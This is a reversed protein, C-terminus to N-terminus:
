VFQKRNMGFHRKEKIQILTHSSIIFSYIDISKNIETGSYLAVVKLSKFKIVDECLGKLYAKFVRKFLAIDCESYM